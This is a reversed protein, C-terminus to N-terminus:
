VQIYFFDKKLTETHINLVSIRYGGKYTHLCPNVVQGPNEGKMWGVIM